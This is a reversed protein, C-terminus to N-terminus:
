TLNDIDSYSGPGQPSQRARLILRRGDERDYIVTYRNHIRDYDAFTVGGTRPRVESV